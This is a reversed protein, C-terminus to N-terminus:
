PSLPVPTPLAKGLSSSLLSPLKLLQAAKFLATEDASSKPPLSVLSTRGIATSSSDAGQIIDAPLNVFSPGPRGYWVSCYANRIADPIADLAPPRFATKTHPSLFSIADLEQFAGGPVAHLIGPGGVVLCVGPKGTLYGYVTAAYGAAQENRFGIFKIGLNIAEEAIEVVPIGVIGFIVAVGLDRLSRVIIQVSTSHAM